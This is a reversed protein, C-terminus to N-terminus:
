GRDIAGDVSQPRYLAVANEYLAARILADDALAQRLLTLDAPVFPRPARTCPLDTGFLLAGPNANAIAALAPAPNSDFRGFGSAKVRAGREVLRLLVPLAARQLGLHDIVVAPLRALVPELMSLAAADAYVETHWRCVGYARRALRELAAPHWTGARHVNFRLARIGRAALASLEADSVGDRAQIVGAFEPGLQEIADAVCAHDFGQFSGAVVAGGAIALASTAARYDAVTFAAPLFGSNAVLPFRPDVIHLHADFIPDASM